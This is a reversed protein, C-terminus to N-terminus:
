NRNISPFTQQGDKKEIDNGSKDGDSGVETGKVEFDLELEVGSALLELERSRTEDGWGRIM